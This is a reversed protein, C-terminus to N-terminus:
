AMNRKVRQRRSRLKDAIGTSRIIGLSKCGSREMLHEASGGEGGDERMKQSERIKDYQLENDKLVSQEASPEAAVNERCLASSSDLSVSGHKQNVDIGDCSRRRARASKTSATFNATAAALLLTAM